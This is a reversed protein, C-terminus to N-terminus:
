PRLLGALVIDVYRDRAAEGLESPPVGDLLVALDVLTVDPRILGQEHALALLDNMATVARATVSGPEPAMIAVMPSAQGLMSAAAKAAKDEGHRAALDRFLGGLETIPDGGARTRAVAAEIAAAMTEVSDQVVAGILDAKTPFHRYLTGVAVGAAAAIDDMGVDVGREAVLVRATALIKARNRFADTRM